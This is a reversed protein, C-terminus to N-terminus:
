GMHAKCTTAAPNAALRADEIPNHCVTCIGFDGTEIALLARKIDNYRAELEFEISSTEEFETIEAARSEMEPIAPIPADVAPEWDDPNEPNIRGVTHLEKELLAREEELKAKLVHIDHTTMDKMM